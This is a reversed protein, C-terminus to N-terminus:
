NWMLWGVTSIDQDTDFYSWSLPLNLLLLYEQNATILFLLLITFLDWVFLGVLVVVPIRDVRGSVFLFPFTYPSSENGFMGKMWLDKDREKRQQSTKYQTAHSLGLTQAGLHDIEPTPM